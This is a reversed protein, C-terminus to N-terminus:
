AATQHIVDRVRPYIENQWRRGSFVGYHGVGTQVHHNRWYPRVSTCLDQAAVTQGVSCIDDREGEVTFLATRRIARPDVMTDRWSLAGRPLDYTQFVKGVTELYFEAPLDAVAFYEEYFAKTHAAKDHEGAAIHAYMDEFAKQHRERNMAMFASLQVFGPYVKRGAGRQTWPVKHIMNEEFWSMPKSTALENVGTPNVRCDIPGAMLTLSRPQAPHADQAMLSTAALAAVCPQCIAMLHSGPGMRDLFRILHETYDDLGFPGHRLPVDRANHWDTIYVDHDQLLTRVTDRLLTAFHGSMPAVLLVRPLEPGGEKRFRLLTGFPTSMVKEETIAYERGQCVVSPIDFAPRAHTLKLRAFVEQAAAVSRSFVGGALLEEMSSEAPGSPLIQHLCDALGQAMVRWPELITHQAQYTTYLM